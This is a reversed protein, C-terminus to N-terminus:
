IVDAFFRETSRFYAMGLFTVATASVFSVAVLPWVNIDTGLLAWRFGEIAGVLPNISYLLRWKEPILSAPYAVPSGFMWIQTIFPIVYRFDRYKVNLASLWIGVGSASMATLILMFPLAWVNPSPWIGYIPMLVFILLAAAIALDLLGGFVPALPIILRPFYIKTVMREDAILSGASQNMTHAFFTWIVLGSYSFVAYPLGDSSIKALKGFIVTFIVMSTVPQLLAWAAGLVTQKYRVLIDRWVLFYFLDRYDWFEKWDIKWFGAQPQIDIFPRDM